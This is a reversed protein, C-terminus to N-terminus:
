LVSSWNGSPGYDPAGAWGYTFGLEEDSEWWILPYLGGGIADPDEDAVVTNLRVGGAKAAFLLRHLDTISIGEQDGLVEVVVAAPYYEDLSVVAETEDLFGAVIELLQEITGDSYNVLLRVRIARRYDDDTRSLRPEGVLRGMFDLAQGVATDPDFANYVAWAANELEQVEDLVAQVAAQNRPGHRFLDILHSVGEAVHQLNQVYLGEAPATPPESATAELTFDLSSM